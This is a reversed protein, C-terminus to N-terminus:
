VPDVRSAHAMKREHIRMWEAVSNDQEQTAFVNRAGAEHLRAEQGLTQRLRPHSNGRLQCNSISPLASAAQISGFSSSTARRASSRRLSLAGYATIFM